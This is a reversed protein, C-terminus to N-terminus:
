GLALDLAHEVHIRTSDFLPLPSDAQGILLTIETCGLIVAQAGREALAALVRVYRQRAPDTVLGQTLERYIIEHVAARDDEDPVIVEIGHRDRMRARYFDLEMTYRTGLLGVRTLGAASIRAATADVIHVFPVEVADEISQAVQHMTNTCLLILEAGADQLRKAGDALFRGARDWEGAEQMAAVTAFDM